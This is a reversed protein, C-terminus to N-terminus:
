KRNQPLRQQYAKILFITDKKLNNRIWDKQSQDVLEGLGDLIYKDSLQEIFAVCEDLYEKLSKKTKTKIIQENIEWNRSFFYHMDFLDRMATKKRDTLALLKNAFADEKVIIRMAIGLYDSVIFQSNTPRHSIEIKITREGKDYSLLFFITYHKLQAERIEIDPYKKLIKEIETLVFSKQDTKLLDFDLDVSYRPLNYFLHCATGGKFGLYNGLQPHEYIDKLIRVMNFKHKEWDLM